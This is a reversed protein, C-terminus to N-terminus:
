TQTAIPYIGRNRFLLACTYTGNAEISNNACVSKGEIATFGCLGSATPPIANATAASTTAIPV